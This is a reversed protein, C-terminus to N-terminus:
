ARLGFRVAPALGIGVGPRLEQELRRRLRPRPGLPCRRDAEADRQHDPRREEEEPGLPGQIGDAIHGEGRDDDGKRDSQDGSGEPQAHDPAEAGLPRSPHARLLPGLDRGVQVVRDQLRERQHLLPGALRVLDRLQRPALLPLEAGPEGAILRRPGALAERVGEPRSRLIDLLRM